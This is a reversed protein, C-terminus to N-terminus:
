TIFKIEKVLMNERLIRILEDLFIKADNENAPTLFNHFGSYVLTGKGIFEKILEEEQQKTESAEFFNQNLVKFFEKESTSM